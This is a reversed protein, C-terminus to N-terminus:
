SPATDTNPFNIKYSYGGSANYGLGLELCHGVNNSDASMYTSWGDSEKAWLRLTQGEFVHAAINHFLQHITAKNTTSYEAATSVGNGIRGFSNTYTNAPKLLKYNEGGGSAWNTIGSTTVQSSSTFATIIGATGDTTRTIPRGIMGANFNAGASADTLTTGGAGGSDSTLAAATYTGSQWPYVNTGTLIL